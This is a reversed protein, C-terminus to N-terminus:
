KMWYQKCDRWDGNIILAGPAKNRSQMYERSAASIEEIEDRIKRIRGKVSNQM